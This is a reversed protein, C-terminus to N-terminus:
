VVEQDVTKDVRIQNLDLRDLEYTDQAVGETAPATSPMGEQSGSARIRTFYSSDGDINKNSDQPTAIARTTASRLNNYRRRIRSTFRVFKPFLPKFTPLNVCIVGTCCHIATWLSSHMFNVINDLDLDTFLNWRMGTPPLFRISASILRTSFLSQIRNVM